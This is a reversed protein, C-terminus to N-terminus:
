IYQVHNGVFYNIPLSVPITTINTNKDRLILPNSVNFNNIKIM